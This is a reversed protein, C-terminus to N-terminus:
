RSTWALPSSWWRMALAPARRVVALDVFVTRTEEPQAALSQRAIETNNRSVALTHAGPDIPLPAELVARSLPEGDLRLVDDPALRGADVLMRGIPQVDRTVALDMDTRALPMDTMDPDGTTRSPLPYVQSNM